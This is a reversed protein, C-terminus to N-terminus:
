SQYGAINCFKAKGKLVNIRYRSNYPIDTLYSGYKSKPVIYLTTENALDLNKAVRIEMGTPELKEGKPVVYVMRKGLVTKGLSFAIEYSGPKNATISFARSGGDLAIISEPFVTLAKKDFTIRLGAEPLNGKPANGRPDRVSLNTTLTRGTEINAGDPAIAIDITFSKLYEAAEDDIVKQRSEISNPDIKIM